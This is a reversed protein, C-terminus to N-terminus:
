IFYVWNKCYLHVFVVEDRFRSVEDFFFLQDLLPFVVEEVVVERAFLQFVHAVGEVFHLDGAGFSGEELFGAHDHFLGLGVSEGFVQLDFDVVVHINALFPVRFALQEEMSKEGADDLFDGGTPEM